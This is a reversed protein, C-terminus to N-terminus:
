EECFEEYAEYGKTQEVDYARDVFDEILDDADIWRSM